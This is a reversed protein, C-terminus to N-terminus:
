GACGFSANLTSFGADNDDNDEGPIAIGTNQLGTTEDLTTSKSEIRIISM